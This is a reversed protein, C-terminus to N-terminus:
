LSARAALAVRLDELGEEAADRTGTLAEYGGSLVTKADKASLGADRLLKELDRKSMDAAKVSDVRALENMPFTVVSVEWLEAKEIVRVDDQYKWDVTRYGISLGDLAGMKLLAYVENGRPTDALVGELLLGEGDQKVATWVGIVERADHQWLMAVKRGSAISESFAGAAVIDGGRDVNGFVSGRGTITRAEGEAKVEFSVFKHDIAM